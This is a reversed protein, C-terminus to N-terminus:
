FVVVCFVGVRFFILVSFFSCLFFMESRQMEMALLSNMNLFRMSVRMRYFWSADACLLELAFLSGLTSFRVLSGRWVPGWLMQSVLELAFLLSDAASFRLSSRLGFVRRVCCLKLADACLLKLAFLSLLMAVWVCVCVLRPSWLSRKGSRGFEGAVTWRLKGRHVCSGRPCNCASMCFESTVVSERM